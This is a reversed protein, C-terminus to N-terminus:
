YVTVNTKMSNGALKVNVVEIKATYMVKLLIQFKM